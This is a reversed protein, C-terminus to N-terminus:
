REVRHAGECEVIFNLDVLTSGQKQAALAIQMQVEDILNAAILKDGPNQRHM